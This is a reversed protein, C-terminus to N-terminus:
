GSQYSIFFEGEISALHSGLLTRRQDTGTTTLAWAKYGPGVRIREIDSLTKDMRFVLIALATYDTFAVRAAKHCVGYTVGQHFCELLNKPFGLPPDLGLTTPRVRSPVPPDQRTSRTRPQWDERPPSAALNVNEASVSQNERQEHPRMLDRELQEAAERQRNWQNMIQQLESLSILEELEATPLLKPYKIETILVSEKKTGDALELTCKTKYDPISIIEKPENPGRDTIKDSRRAQVQGDMSLTRGDMERYGDDIVFHLPTIMFGDITRSADAESRHFLMTPDERPLKENHLDHFEYSNLFNDAKQLYPAQPEPLWVRPVYVHHASESSKHLRTPGGRSEINPLPYDTRVAEIISPRSVSASDIDIQEGTGAGDDIDMEDPANM